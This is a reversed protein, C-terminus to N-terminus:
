KAFGGWERLAQAQEPGRQGVQLLDLYIQVDSVLNFGGVTQAEQFVGEDRPTILWLNGGNDVRRGWTIESFLKSKVYASVLPPTTYPHRLHAAFWQTFFVNDGGLADRATEAVKVLDAALLSYQDIIGRKGWDDAASWEELLRDFDKLQYLAALHRSGPRTQEVLEREILEALTLSVLARSIGTHTELEAQTWEQERRSLLVRVVRSSKLTFPSLETGPNRYAHSKPERDLLFTPTKVFLRGNLDAHNIGALQLDAALADPLHPCLLLVPKTGAEPRPHLLKRSPNLRPWIEFIHKQHGAEFHLSAKGDSLTIIRTKIGRDCQIHVSQIFLSLLKEGSDIIRSKPNEKM